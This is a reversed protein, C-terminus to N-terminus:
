RNRRPLCSNTKQGLFFLLFHECFLFIQKTPVETIERNEHQLRKTIYDKILSLTAVKNQSLIQVALMPPLLNDKDINALVETIEKQNNEEKNAFYTLVVM